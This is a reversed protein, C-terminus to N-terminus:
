TNKKQKNYIENLFPYKDLLIRFNDNASMILDFDINKILKYKIILDFFKRGENSIGNYGLLIMEFNSLQARLIGAYFQKNKTKIFDTKDIYKILYFLNRFYHGLIAIHLHFMKEYESITEGTSKADKDSSNVSSENLTKLHIQNFIYEFFNGQEYEINDIKLSISSVNAKHFELLRFFKSEFQDIRTLSTQLVVEDKHSKIEIRTYELEKRQLALEQRQLGFEQRQLNISKGLYFIGIFTLTTGFIGALFDGFQGFKDARIKSGYDFDEGSLFLLIFLVAVAASIIGIKKVPLEGFEKELQVLKAEDEILEKELQETERELKELKKAEELRKTDEIEKENEESSLKLEENEKGIQDKQKRNM